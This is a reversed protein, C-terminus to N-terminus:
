LTQGVSKGKMDEIGLTLGVSKKRLGNLTDVPSEKSVRKVSKQCEKSVRRLFGIELRGEKSVRKVSKQCEESVRKVSERRGSKLLSVRKVSKQCEKSM